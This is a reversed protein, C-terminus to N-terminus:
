FTTTLQGLEDKSTVPVQQQLDGRALAQSAKTLQRIPKLLGSSLFFGMGVAVIVGALAALTIALTTRQLFLEEEASLKFQLQADPLVWAITKDDFTVPIAQKMKESPVMQGIQYGITPMLAIYQDDVLGLIARIDRQKSPKDYVPPQSQNPETRNSRSYFDFFGDMTNHNTYYTQVSETLSAVQQEVVLSMLSQGSTLWILASVVVVTLLAVGLYSLILKGKLSRRM